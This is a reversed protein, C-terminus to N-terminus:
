DEFLAELTDIELLREGWRELQESPAQQLRSQVWVPLEGFRRRLQRLLLQAEGERLGERKFEEGWEQIRDALM